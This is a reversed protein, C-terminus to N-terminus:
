KSVLADARSRHEDWEDGIVRASASRSSRWGCQCQLVYEADGDEDV